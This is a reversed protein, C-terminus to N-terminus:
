AIIFPGSAANWAHHSGLAGVKIFYKVVLPRDENKKPQNQVFSVQFFAHLLLMIFKHNMIYDVLVKSNAM